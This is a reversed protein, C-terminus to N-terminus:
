WNFLLDTSACGTQSIMCSNDSDSWKKPLSQSSQSVSSRLGSCWSVAGGLWYAILQLHCGLCFSLYGPGHRLGLQHLWVAHWQATLMPMLSLNAIWSPVMMVLTCSEMTLQARWIDYCTSSLTCMNLTDNANVTTDYATVRLKACMVGAWIGQHFSQLLHLIPWGFM